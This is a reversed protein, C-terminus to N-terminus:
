FGIFGSKWVDRPLFGYFMPFFVVSLKSCFFSYLAFFSRCKDQFFVISFM